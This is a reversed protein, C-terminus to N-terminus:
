VFRKIGKVGVAIDFIVIANVKNYKKSVAFNFTKDDRDFRFYINYNKTSIM